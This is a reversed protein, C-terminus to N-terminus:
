RTAALALWDALARTGISRGEGERVPSVWASDVEIAVSRQLLTVSLVVRHGGKFHILIGELNHLSGYTVRVKQGIQIFPWPQNPLGSALAQRIAELESDEVPTPTSGIGVIKKVGPTTLLPRRQQFDFRSFLYGPFLPQELEKTRDSWRRVSKYSPLFCEHGQGALHAAVCAERRCRVQLAFWPLTSRPPTISDKRDTM